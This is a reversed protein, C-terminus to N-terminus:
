KRLAEVFAKLQDEYVDFQARINDKTIGGRFVIDYEFNVDKDKDVYVKTFRNEQNWGNAFSADKDKKDTFFTRLGVSKCQEQDDCSYFNLTVNWGGIRTRIRRKGDNGKMVEARFGLDQLITAMEDPSASLIVEQQATEARGSVATALYLLSVLALQVRPM